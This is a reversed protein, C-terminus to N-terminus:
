KIFFRSIFTFLIQLSIYVILNYHTGTAFSISNQNYYGHFDKSNAANSVPKSLFM